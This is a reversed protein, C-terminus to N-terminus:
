IILHHDLNIKAIMKNIQNNIIKKINMMIKKIIIKMMIVIVVVIKIQINIKKVLKVLIILVKPEMITTVINNEQNIMKLKFELVIKCFIRYSNNSKTIKIMM